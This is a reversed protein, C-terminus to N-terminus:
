DALLLEGMPIERFVPSFIFLAAMMALIIAFIAQGAQGDTGAAAHPTKLGDMMQNIHGLETEQGTAIVVGIGM